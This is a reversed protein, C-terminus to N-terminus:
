FILKLAFQIQRSSTATTTIAGASASVASGSFVPISPIGFNARNLINFAEIRLQLRIKEKVPIDKFLSTDVDILDPGSFAGRPVNGFTGPTPLTFAAPNYWQNPKGTVVPGTFNPNWNPRDPNNSDGTGSINQGATPTIPFGSQASFIGNWQWGGILYNALTGVGSGWRQGRGFPLNYTSNFNFQQQLNYAALGKSLGLNYPTLVDGPENTSQQTVAVSDQDLLKGFTYNVKFSLGQSVRKVLSVNLAHYSSVGNYMFTQSYSTYPNPTTGPPEYTTGQPVHGLAGKTGGSACGAPNTCVQPPITNTDYYNILHYAQSGVYGLRLVLNNTLEKEVTFSWEQVTPTHMNPEVGEPAYLACSSAPIGPGCPPLEAAPGYPLPVLGLLGNPNTLTIRGGYPYNGNIRFALNNQLDNMIGFGARVSWKGSGNPDWALGVRPQWLAIANNQTLASPGCLTNQQIVGNQDYIYNCARNHAENDGSTMEDRLGLRLSLNPRLKIEDQVYWASMTTRFGLKTLSPVYLFTNLQDQLFATLTSFSAGGSTNAAPGFSNEQARQM